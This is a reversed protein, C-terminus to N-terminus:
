VYIISTSYFSAENEEITNKSISGGRPNPLKIESTDEDSFESTFTIKLVPTKEMKEQLPLPIDSMFINAEQERTFQEVVPGLYNENQIGTISMDLVKINRNPAVVVKYRWHVSRTAFDITYKLGAEYNELITDMALHVIGLTGPRLAESTKYFREQLENNIWLEYAGDEEQSLDLNFHIDMSNSLAEERITNGSATKIELKIEGSPLLLVFRDPRAKVIEEQTVFPSAHLQGSNNPRNVNSFYLLEEESNLNLDTYNFFENDEVTLQFVLNTIGAFQNSIDFAMGNNVGAYLSHVNGNKHLLIDYNHLWKSTDRTPILGFIASQGDPFYSHTIECEM